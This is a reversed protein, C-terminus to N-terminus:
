TRQDDRQQALSQLCQQFNPAACRKKRFQARRIRERPLRHRTAVMGRSDVIIHHSALSCRNSLNQKHQLQAQTKSCETGSPSSNGPALPTCGKERPLNPLLGATVTSTQRKSLTPGPIGAASAARPSRTLTYLVALTHCSAATATSRALGNKRRAAKVLRVRDRSGGVLTEQLSSDQRTLVWLLFVWETKRARPNHTPLPYRRVVHWGFQASLREKEERERLQASHAHGHWVWRLCYPVWRLQKRRLGFHTKQKQVGGVCLAARRTCRAGRGSAWSRTEGGIKRTRVRLRIADNSEM